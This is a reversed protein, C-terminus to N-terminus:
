LGGVMLFPHICDCSNVFHISIVSLAFYFPVGIKLLNGAETWVEGQLSSGDFTGDAVSLLRNKYHEEFELLLKDM